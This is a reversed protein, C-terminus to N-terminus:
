IGVENCVKKVKRKFRNKIHVVDKDYIDWAM